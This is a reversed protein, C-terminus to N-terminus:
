LLTSQAPHVRQHTPAAWAAELASFRLTGDRETLPAVQALDAGANRACAPKGSFVPKGQTLSHRITQFSGGTKRPEIACLLHTLASITANRTVAAHTRWPAEPSFESLLLVRGAKMHKRFSRPLRYSLLGQPLVLITSGGCRVAAGHAALDVGAAAGSVVVAGVGCWYRACARACLTGRLTPKRTGVIGVKRADLLALNGCAFLVPPAARGLASRLPEPYPAVGTLLTHGGTAQIAHVQCAAKAQVEPGCASVSAALRETGSPLLATLEAASRGLLTCLPTGLGEALAITRAVSVSGVGPRSLLALVAEATVIRPKSM